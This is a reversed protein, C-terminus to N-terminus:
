GIREIKLDSFYSNYADQAEEFNDIRGIDLWYEKMLYRGIKKKNKLMDKILSDIGYYTDHPIVNLAAPKFAYIGAIAELIFDPKEQIDLIYKGDSFVKGFSFPMIMEKTVVTFDAENEMAYRYLNDINLTTLVDGNILLFPENLSDRLLSLPGCTGLPKSEKSYFIKVGYKQGNGLFAEVYEAMYNTAIYFENIGYKKMSLIQIELVSSEGIPLLPKPIVQTFPRLRSGLGGALIVAKEFLERM